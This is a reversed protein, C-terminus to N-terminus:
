GYGGTKWGLQTQLAIKDHHHIMGSNIPKHEVCETIMNNLDDETSYFSTTENFQHQSWKSEDNVWSLFAWSSSEYLSHLTTSMAIPKKQILIPYWQVITSSIKGIPPSGADSSSDVVQSSLLGANSPRIV